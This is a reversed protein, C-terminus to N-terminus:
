PRYVALAYIRGDRAVWHDIVEVGALRRIIARTRDTLKARIDSPLITHTLPDVDAFVVKAGRAAPIGTVCPNETKRTRSEAHGALLSVAAKHSIFCPKGVFSPAGLHTGSPGFIRTHRTYM